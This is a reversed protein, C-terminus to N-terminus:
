AREAVDLLLRRIEDAPRGRRDQAAHHGPKPRRRGHAPDPSIGSNGSEPDSFEQMWRFMADALVQNGAVNFHFDHPWHLAQHRRAEALDSHFPVYGFGQTECLSMMRKRLNSSGLSQNESDDIVVFHSGSDRVQRGLEEIIKLNIEADAAKLRPRLAPNEQKADSEECGRGAWAEVTGWLSSSCTRLVSHHRRRSRQGGYENAILEQQVAAFQKLDQPSRRILRDEEIRFLPRVQLMRGSAGTFKADQLEEVSLKFIHPSLYLFVFEPGFKRAYEEWVLLAQGTGYASVAFNLVEFRDEKGSDEAEANLRQELVQGASEHLPVQLAEIMSAGLLAVRAIGDPKETDREFDRFGFSNTRIEVSFDSAYDTYGTWTWELNPVQKWGLVGDPQLFLVDYGPHLLVFGQLAGIYVNALVGLVAVIWLAKWRIWIALLAVLLVTGALPLPLLSCLAPISDVLSSV